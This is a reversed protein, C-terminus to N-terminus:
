CGAELSALLRKPAVMRWSETLRERLTEEAIASIRVLVAPYDRYHDTIFFTEPEADMLFRREFLNVKLVLTDGDEWLRAFLKGKVKLAPTGYSTGEEVEPLGAALRKVTQWGALEGPSGHAASETM